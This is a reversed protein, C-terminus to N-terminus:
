LKERVRLIQFERSRRGKDVKENIVDSPVSDNLGIANGARDVAFGHLRGEVHADQQCQRQHQRQRRDEQELATHQLEPEAHHLHDQQQACLDYHADVIKEAVAEERREFEVGLADFQWQHQREDGHDEGIQGDTGNEPVFQHDTRHVADALFIYPRRRHRGRERRTPMRKTEAQFSFDTRFSGFFM